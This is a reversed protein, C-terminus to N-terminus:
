VSPLLTMKVAAASEPEIKLPQLPAQEVLLSQVRTISWALVVVAVKVRSDPKGGRGVSIQAAPPVTCSGAAETAVPAFMKHVAVVM